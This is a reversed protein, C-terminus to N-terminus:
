SGRYKKFTEAVGKGAKIDVKCKEDVVRGLRCVQKVTEIMEVPVVVVGDQDAVIWDGPSVVVDPWEGVPSSRIAIPVGIESPRTFPKQGLTSQGRAFVPFGAERHEAVDRCRGQCPRPIMFHEQTVLEGSIVVGVAGRAQAGLSM